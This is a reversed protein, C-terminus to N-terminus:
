DPAFGTLGTLNRAQRATKQKRANPLAIGNRELCGKMKMQEFAHWGLHKDYTEDDIRWGCDGHVVTV